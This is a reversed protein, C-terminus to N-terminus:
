GSPWGFSDKAFGDTEGDIIARDVDSLSLAFTRGERQAVEGAPMGVHAVEPDTYTCWPM